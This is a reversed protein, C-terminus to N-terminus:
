PRALARSAARRDLSLAYSTPDIYFTGTDALSDLMGAIAAEFLLQEDLTDRDFYQDQLIGVIENLTSFDITGDGSVGDIQINSGGGGDSDNTAYGLTFVLALLVAGLLAGVFWAAVRYM